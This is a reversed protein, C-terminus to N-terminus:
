NWKSISLITHHRATAEFSTIISTPVFTMCGCFQWRLSLKHKVSFFLTSFIQLDKM